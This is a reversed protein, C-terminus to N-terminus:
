TYRSPKLTFQSSVEWWIMNFYHIQNVVISNHYVILRTQDKIRLHVVCPKALGSCKDVVLFYRSCFITSNVSLFKELQNCNYIM